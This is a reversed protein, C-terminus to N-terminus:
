DIKWNKREGCFQMTFILLFNEPILMEISLLYSTATGLRIGSHQLLFLEISIGRGTNARYLSIRKVYLSAGSTCLHRLDSPIRSNVALAVPTQGM